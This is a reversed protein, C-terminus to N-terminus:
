PRDARRRAGARARWAGAVALASWVLLSFPEPTATSVGSQPSTGSSGSSTSSTSTATATGVTNANFPLDFTVSEGAGLGQGYFSLGLAQVNIPSGNQELATTSSTVLIQGPNNYYYSNSSSDSAVYLLQSTSSSPLISIPTDLALVQPTPPSTSANSPPSAGASAIAQTTTLTYQLWQTSTSSWPSPANSPATTTGDYKIQISPDSTWQSIDTSTLSSVNYATFSPPTVDARSSTSELGLGFALAAALVILPAPCRRLM